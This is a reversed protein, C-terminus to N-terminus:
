DSGLGVAEKFALEQWSLRMVDNRQAPGHDFQNLIAACAHDSDVLDCAVKIDV